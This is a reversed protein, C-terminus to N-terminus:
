EDTDGQYAKKVQALFEDDKTTKTSEVLLGAAWFFLWTLFKETALSLLLKKLITIAIMQKGKYESVRKLAERRDLM